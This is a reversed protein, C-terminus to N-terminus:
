VGILKLVFPIKSGNLSSETGEIESQTNSERLRKFAVGCERCIQFSNDDGTDPTERLYIEDVVVGPM